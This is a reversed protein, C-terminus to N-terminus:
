IWGHASLEFEELLASSVQYRQERPGRKRSRTDIKKLFGHRELFSLLEQTQDSDLAQQLCDRRIDERTIEALKKAHLWVLVKRANMHRPTLGIQRLAARAHPFFYKQMLEVAAAVYQWFIQKPTKDKDSAAWDILALTGALRAVNKPSKALWERERGDLAQTEKHVFQRYGEMYECAKESLPLIENGNLMSLRKLIKLVLLNDSPSQLRSYPVKNGWAFLFRGYMGDAAGEFSKKLKDPQLGGVVAILLCPININDRGIRIQTFPQGDHAMLWFGSDEGQSYRSLNNLLASLEDLTLLAGKPQAQLQRVLSEITADIVRLLPEVFTGPGIAREPMEPPDDGAEIAEKAANQWQKYLTKATQVKLEHECKMRNIQTRLDDQLENLPITSVEMGASKGDGSFGVNAVWIVCPDIFKAFKVRRSAGILGSCIGLMPPAIYDIPIGLAASEDRISQQLARPQILELPFDPLAGRRNDLLSWDPQELAYICHPRAGSKRQRRKRPAEIDEAIPAFQELDYIAAPNHDILVSAVPVRGRESKSADPYNKTGPVRLMRNIEYADDAGFHEALAKNRAEVDATIPGDADPKIKTRLKWLLHVGNGSNITFTPPRDFAQIKASIRERFQEPTEDDAPDIDVHLYEIAVIDARTAKRSQDAKCKNVNYHINRQKQMHAAIFRRAKEVDKFTETPIRSDDNPDIASITWRTGFKQLFRVANTGALKAKIETKTLKVNVKTVM